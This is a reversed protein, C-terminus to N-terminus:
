GDIWQDMWKDRDRERERGERERERYITLEDVHHNKDGVCRPHNKNEPNLKSPYKLIMLIIMLLVAAAFFDPCGYFTIWGFWLARRSNQGKEMANKGADDPQFVTQCDFKLSKSKGWMAMHTQQKEQEMGGGGGGGGGGGDDVVVDDFYVVDDVSCWGDVSCDDFVVDDVCCWWCSVNLCLVMLVVGDVNCWWVCCWTLMKRCWTCTVRFDGWDWQTSHCATCGEGAGWDWKAQNTCCKSRGWDWKTHCTCCESCILTM